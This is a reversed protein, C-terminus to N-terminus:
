PEIEFPVTNRNFHAGTAVREGNSVAPNLLEGADFDSHAGSHSRRKRESGVVRVVARLKAVELIDHVPRVDIERAVSDRQRWVIDCIQSRGQSPRTTEDGAQHSM